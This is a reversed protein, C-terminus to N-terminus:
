VLPILEGLIYPRLMAASFDGGSPALMRQLGLGQLWSQPLVQQRVQEPMRDLLEKAIGTLKWELNAINSLAPFDRPYGVFEAHHPVERRFQCLLEGPAPYLQYSTWDEGIM